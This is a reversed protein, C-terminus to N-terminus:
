PVQPRRAGFGAGFPAPGPQPARSMYAAAGGGTPASRHAPQSWLAMLSAGKSGGSAKFLNKVADRDAQTTEPAISRCNPLLQTFRRLVHAPDSGAAILQDGRWLLNDLITQERTLGLTTCKYIFEQLVPVADYWTLTNKSNRLVHTLHWAHPQI